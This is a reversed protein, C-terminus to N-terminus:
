GLTSSEGDAAMKAQMMRYTDLAAKYAMDPYQHGPDPWPIRHLWEREAPTIALLEGWHTLWRDVGHSSVPVLKAQSQLRLDALELAAEEETMYREGVGHQLWLHNHRLVAGLKRWTKPDSARTGDRADIVTGPNLNAARALAGLSIDDCDRMAQRLREGRQIRRRLEEQTPEDPRHRSVGINM